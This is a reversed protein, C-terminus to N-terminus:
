AKVWHAKLKPQFISPFIAIGLIILNGIVVVYIFKDMNMLAIVFVSIQSVTAPLLLQIPRLTPIARWARLTLVILLVFLVRSQSADLVAKEYQKKM